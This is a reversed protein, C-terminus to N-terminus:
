KRVFVEVVSELHSSDQGSEHLSIYDMLSDFDDFSHKSDLEILAGRINIPEFGFSDKYLSIIKAEFLEWINVKSDVGEYDDNQKEIDGVSSENTSSDDINKDFIFSDEGLADSQNQFYNEQISPSGEFSQEVDSSLIFDDDDEVEDKLSNYENVLPTEQNKEIEKDEDLVLDEEKDEIQDISIDEFSVDGLDESNNELDLELSESKDAAFNNENFSPKDDEFDEKIELVVDDDEFEVLEDEKSIDEEVVLDVSEKQEDVYLNEQEDLDEKIDELDNEVLSSPHSIEEKEFGGSMEVFGVDVKSNDEELYDVVSEETFDEKIVSKNDLSGELQPYSHALFFFPKNKCLFFVCRIDCSFGSIVRKCLRGLEQLDRDSIKKEFGKSKLYIKQLSFSDDGSVIKFEQSSINSSTVKLNYDLVTKDKSMNRTIDVLGFYSKLEIGQRSAFAEVTYDVRKYKQVVIACSDEAVNKKYDDGKSKLFRFYLTKIGDLFEEFGKVNLIVGEFKIDDSYTPSLILNIVPTRQTTLDDSIGLSNYSDKLDDLIDQPFVMRTLFDKPDGTLNDKILDFVEKSIIFGPIVSKTIRQIRSLDFAIPGVLSYDSDYVGSYTLTTRM